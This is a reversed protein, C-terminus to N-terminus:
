QAYCSAGSRVWNPLPAHDIRPITRIIDDRYEASVQERPLLNM